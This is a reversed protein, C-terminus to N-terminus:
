RLIAYEVSWKVPDDLNSDQFSARNNQLDVAFDKLHHKDNTFEFSFGQIFAKGSQRTFSIKGNPNNDSVRTAAKVNARPIIAYQASWSYPIRQADDGFTVELEDAIRRVAIKKIQHDDKEYQFSFGTLVFIHEDDCSLPLKATCTGGPCYENNKFTATQVNSGLSNYRLTFKYPDNGDNDQFNVDVGSTSKLARIGKIHHDSNTFGFRFSTMGANDSIGPSVVRSGTVTSTGSTVLQGFAPAASFTLVSFLSAAFLIKKM